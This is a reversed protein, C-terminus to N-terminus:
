HRACLVSHVDNFPFQLSAFGPLRSAGNNPCLILLAHKSLGVSRLQEHFQTWGLGCAPKGKLSKPESYIEGRKVEREKGKREKGRTCQNNKYKGKQNFGITRM